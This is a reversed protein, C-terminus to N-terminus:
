PGPPPGQIEVGYRGAAAMVRDMDSPGQPPLVRKPVPDAAARIFREHQPTSLNLFSATESEVRFAHPVGKPVHVFSGSVARTRNDANELFFSVEGELIFFSEDDEPQVHLPTSVGRPAEQLTLAFRGGTQEAAVKVTALTGFFWLAEGEGADLAYGRIVDHM